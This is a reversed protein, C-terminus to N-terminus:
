CLNQNHCVIFYIELYFLFLIFLKLFSKIIHNFASLQGSFLSILLHFSCFFSHCHALSRYSPYKLCDSNKNEAKYCKEKNYCNMKANELNAKLPLPLKLDARTGFPNAAYMLMICTISVAITAIDNPFNIDSKLTADSAPISFDVNAPHASPLSS